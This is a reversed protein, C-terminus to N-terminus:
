ESEYESAHRQIYTNHKEIAGSAAHGVVADNNHETLANNNNNNNNNNMNTNHHTANNIM